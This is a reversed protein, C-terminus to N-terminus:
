CSFGERMHGVKKEAVSSGSYIVHTATAADLTAAAWSHQQQNLMVKISYVAVV